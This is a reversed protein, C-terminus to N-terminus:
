AITIDKQKDTRKYTQENTRRDGVDRVVALPPPKIADAIAGCQSTLGSSAVALAAEHLTGTWRNTQKKDTQRDGFYM